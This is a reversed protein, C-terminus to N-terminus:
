SHASTLEFVLDQTTEIVVSDLQKDNEFTITENGLLTVNVAEPIEIKTIETVKIKDQDSPKLDYDFNNNIWFKYQNTDKKELTIAGVGDKSQCTSDSYLPIGTKGYIIRYVKTEAQPAMYYVTPTGKTTVTVKAGYTPVDDKCSVICFVSVIALLAIILKKM